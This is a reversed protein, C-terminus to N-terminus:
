TVTMAMSFTGGAVVNLLDVCAPIGTPTVNAPPVAIAASGSYTNTPTAALTLTTGLYLICQTGAVTVRFGVTTDVVLTTGTKLIKGSRHQFTIAGTGPGTSGSTTCPITPTDGTYITVATGACTASGLLTGGSSTVSFQATVHYTTAGAPTALAFGGGVLGLVTAVAVVGAGRRAVRRM